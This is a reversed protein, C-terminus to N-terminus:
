SICGMPGEDMVGYAGVYTFPNALAGSRDTIEGFPFYAYAAVVAGGGDTMAITNGTQDYHYYYYGGAPTGM